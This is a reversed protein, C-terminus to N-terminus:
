RRAAVAAERSGLKSLISELREPEVPKVLHDDFGAEASRRRDDSSGYGTMAILLTGARLIRRLRRGAEYGDLDPLGIDLLVLDPDVDAAIQLAQWGSYAVDVKHGMMRLLMALSETLDRNDDVVLVRAPASEGCPAPAPADPVGAVAAAVPASLPLRVEFTSGRGRGSSNAEVQGGQLEVLSRVLTLGIGLGGQSRDLAVPAQVFLQFIHPLIEPDIGVGNDAIRVVAQDDEREVEVRIHGGPDTYKAANHLLNSFVQTLRVGDADLTLPREPLSIELAHGRSEFMPRMGEIAGLLVDRLVLSQRRLEIKGHKVRSVDLLDDVMRSLQRLQRDMLDLQTGVVAPGGRRLLAIATVLPALPNRLEHALMALFDDRQRHEETLQANLRWAEARASELADVLAQTRRASKDAEIAHAEALAARQEAAFTAGLMPLAVELTGLCEEDLTGGVLVAALRDIVLALAPRATGPPLDVETVRRGTAGLSALFTRWKPGGRVTQAFGPAPVLVGLTPDRVFIMLTEAGLRAALAAAAEPRSNEDALRVLEELLAPTASM